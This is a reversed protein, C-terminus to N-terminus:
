DAESLCPLPQHRVKQALVRLPLVRRASTVQLRQHQRLQRAPLAEPDAGEAADVPRAADPVERWTADGDLRHGKATMLGRLARRLLRRQQPAHGVRRARMRVDDRQVAAEDDPLVRAEGEIEGCAIPEWRDALGAGM